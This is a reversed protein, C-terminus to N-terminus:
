NKYNQECGAFKKFQETIKCHSKEAVVFNFRMLYYYNDSIINSVTESSM